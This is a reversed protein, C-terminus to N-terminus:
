IRIKSKASSTHSVSDLGAQGYAVADGFHDDSSMLTPGKNLYNAFDAVQVYEGNDYAKQVAELREQIAKSRDQLVKIQKNTENQVALLDAFYAKISSELNSKIQEKTQEILNM